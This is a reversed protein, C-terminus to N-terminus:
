TAYWALEQGHRDSFGNAAYFASVAAAADDLDDFLGLHYNKGDLKVGARWKGAPKHWYVGCVGSTNNRHMSCNKGNEANNSAILNSWRNNLSDRDVHDVQEPLPEGIWLFALRSGLYDKGLLAIQLRPYGRAATHVYGASKGAHRTNWIKWSRETQFWDRSRQRWTFIGTDTNYDLLERVIETTINTM